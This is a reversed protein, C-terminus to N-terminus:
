TYTLPLRRVIRQQQDLLGNRVAVIDKHGSPVSGGLGGCIDKAHVMGTAIGLLDGEVITAQLGCGPALSWLPVM